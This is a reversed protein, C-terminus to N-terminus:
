PADSSPPTVIMSGSCMDTFNEQSLGARAHVDEQEVLVLLLDRRWTNWTLDERLALGNVTVM